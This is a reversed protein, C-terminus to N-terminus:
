GLTYANLVGSRTVVYAINDRVKPAGYIGGDVKISAAFKGTGKNIWHLFGEGDGVVVFGNMQAPPTLNRYELEDQRWKVSGDRDFAWVHSKADTVYVSADDVVMGTFTSIKHTWLSKGNSRDLATIQGQYTAAYLHQHYLVPNADIDIMRQVAFGGEPVAIPRVWLLNGSNLSLKAVNGTAFGAYVHHQDLAPRSSGHLVLSPEDQKFRWLQKGNETSLAYILGNMTKVIVHTQDLAPTALIEGPLHTQWVVVGQKKNLAFVDGKRTGAIILTKNLGPSTTIAGPLKYSWLRSGTQRDTAVILGNLNTTYVATDDVSANLKLYENGVGTGPHSRWLNSVHITPQYTPLPKPSPTNDKEFFGNCASILFTLCLLLSIKIIKIAM